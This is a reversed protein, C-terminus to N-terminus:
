CSSTPARAQLDGGALRRLGRHNRCMLAVGDGERVGREALARALANSREHIEGFTLPGREDILAVRGPDRLAMATFGGAAGTGWAKLAKGM